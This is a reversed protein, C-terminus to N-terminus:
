RARRGGTSRPPLASPRRSAPSPPPPAFRPLPAALQPELEPARPLLQKVLAVLEDKGRALLNADIDPLDVFRAPDESYALLVAAVHKCRGNYGVPCTCEAGSVSGSA